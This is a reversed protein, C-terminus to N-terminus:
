RTASLLQFNGGQPDNASVIWNGGPVQQPGTTIKGSSRTIGPVDWPQRFITGGPKEVRKCAPCAKTM